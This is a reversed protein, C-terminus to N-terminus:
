LDCYYDCQAEDCLCWNWSNTAEMNADVWSYFGRMECEYLQQTYDAVYGDFVEETIRGENLLDVIQNIMVDYEYTCENSAHDFQAENVDRAAQYRNDCYEIEYGNAGPCNPNTQAFVQLTFLLTILFITVIVPKFAKM